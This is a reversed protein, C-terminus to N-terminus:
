LLSLSTQEESNEGSLESCMKGDSLESLELNHNDVAGYNKSSGSTGAESSVQSQEMMIERLIMERANWDDYCKSLEDLTHPLPGDDKKKLAMLVVRYDPVKWTLREKKDIIQIANNIM